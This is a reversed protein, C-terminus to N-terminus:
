KLVERISKVLASPSVPKELYREVPFYDPHEEPKFTCGTNERISSLMIVPVESHIGARIKRVVYFGEDSNGMYLDIVIVDIREEEIKDLAEARSTATLVEFGASDLFVSNAQIFDTDDDILFVRIKESM